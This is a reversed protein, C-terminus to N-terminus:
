IKGSKREARELIISKEHERLSRAHTSLARPLLHSRLVFHPSLSTQRCHIHECVPEGSRVNATVAYM